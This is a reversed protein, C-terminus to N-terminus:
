PRLVQAIHTSAPNPNDVAVFPRIHSSQGEAIHLAIGQQRGQVIPVIEEMMPM